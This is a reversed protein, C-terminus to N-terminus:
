ITLLILLYLNKKEWSYRKSRWAIQRVAWEWGTSTFLISVELEPVDFWEGCSSPHGVIIYNQHRKILGDAIDKDTKWYYWITNYWVSDLIWITQEIHSVRDSFIIYKTYWMSDLKKLVKLLEQYRLKNNTVLRRYIENSDPALWESAEEMEEQNYNYRFRHIYVKVPLSTLWTLHIKGFLKEIWERWFEKRIPTASLWYILSWKWKCIQERRKPPVKHWEDCILM